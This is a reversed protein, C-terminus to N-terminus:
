LNESTQEGCMGIFYRHLRMDRTLEPHFSTALTRGQRVAVARGDVSALVRIQPGVRTIVPARIFVGPFPADGIEPISLPAEFSDAQRGFANRRASADLAGLSPQDSNEITKCLLILGACSGYAPMGAQLREKLPALMDLEVLLKGITTSEGGPIILADIGDIHGRQRLERVRAGVRRVAAAHERFAGQLALVGVTLM